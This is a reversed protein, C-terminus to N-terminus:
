PLYLDPDVATGSERVIFHLHNCSSHGTCDVAGVTDGQQVDCAGSQSAKMHCYTTVINEARYLTTSPDVLEVYWTSHDVSRYYGGLEQYSVASAHGDEAAQIATDEAAAIDIGNHHRGGPRPDCYEGTITGQVPWIMRRVFVQRPPSEAQLGSPDQAKVVVSHWGRLTGAAETDWCPGPPAFKYDGNADANVEGKLSGDVYLRCQVPASSFGTASGKVIIKLGWKFHSAEAPFTITVHPDWVTVTIEARRDVDDDTGDGRPPARSDADWATVRVTYSGCTPPAVWTVSM